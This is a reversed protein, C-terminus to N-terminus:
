ANRKQTDFCLDVSVFSVQLTLPLSPSLCLHSVSIHSLDSVFLQSLSSVFLMLFFVISVVCSFRIVKVCLSLSFSVSLYHCFSPYVSAPLCAQASLTFPIPPTLRFRCSSQRCKPTRTEVNTYKHAHTCTHMNTHTFTHTHSLLLCSLILPRCLLLVLSHSPSLALACSFPSLCLFLFSPVANGRV